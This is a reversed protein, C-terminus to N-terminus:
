FDFDADYNDIIDTEGKPSDDSSGGSGCSDKIAKLVELSADKSSVAPELKERIGRNFGNLFQKVRDVTMGRDMLHFIGDFEFNYQPIWTSKKNTLFNGEILGCAQHVDMSAHSWNFRSGKIDYKEKQNWIPTITDCYWLQARYFDIGSDEIFAFTDAATEASEGPFGIIFCGFTLIGQEKLLEIGKRYKEVTVAKNMNELIRNNGSELGLFVGDCGSQKMLEVMEGDAFQCRFHSHWKFGFRNRIIMRLIEKFRKPPVNFTDDIFAVHKVTGIQDLRKLEKEIDEVGATQYTGAHQPFGCFACSFPCSISARVGVYDGVRPAFLDWDVMNESLPNNERAMPTAAYGTGTKYYINDIKEFDKNGKLTQIIQVLAAEGQSSNVYFDAGISELMYKLVKPEQTRVQTSIFPGGVIIKATQNHKKLFEMIELIPLSSVYLTTTIAITLIHEGALKEVLYDKEDRFSNVFDFSLGRRHLYTGLYSIAGSFASGMSMPVAKVPGGSDLDHCCFINFVEAASYPQQNCYLFNLNLDRYAGSEQGMKRVSKEYGAFEMENHGILLCDITKKM